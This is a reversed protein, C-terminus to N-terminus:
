GFALSNDINEKKNEHYTNSIDNYMQTLRECTKELERRWDENQEASILDKICATACFKNRKRCLQVGWLEHMIDLDHPIGQDSTTEYPFLYVIKQFGTWVISSICMCCPEHTSLFTSNSAVSGRDAPAIQKAWQDIVYVEGHYLPCEIEHNTGAYLTSLTVDELVAAGFWKNGLKEVSQKTLPLIEKEIVELFRKLEEASAKIPPKDVM